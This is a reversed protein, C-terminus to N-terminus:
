VNNKIYQCFKEFEYMKLEIKLYKIKKQQETNLRLFDKETTIIEENNKEAYNIIKNIEEDKFSYHDPFDYQRSIKFKNNKLLNTFNKNNGIGSFVVFNKELNFDSLNQVTYFSEFINIKNNIEKIKEKFDSNMTNEGNIVVADFRKLSKISERLPGAPILLGNGIFQNNNFCVITLDYNISNDQLGDDFIVCNMNKEEAEKLADIRKKKCILNTYNEILKQEDFQDKYFKKIIASDKNDKNFINSIMISLPTKGTGGIYINGVCITKIKNLRQSKKNLFINKIYIPLTFPILLYSILTPKKLDWFEPKKFKM